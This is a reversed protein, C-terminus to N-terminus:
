RLPAGAGAGHETWSKFQDLEALEPWKGEFRMVRDDLTVFAVPKETAWHVRNFVIWWDDPRDRRLWGELWDRMAEIGGPMLSRQSFVTLHFKSGVSEIFEIYGNTPPDPINTPGKWGSRYSNLVGDFDICLVRNGNM